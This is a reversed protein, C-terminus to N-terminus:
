GPRFLPEGSASKIMIGLQGTHYAEHFSLFSVVGRVTKDPIPLGSSSEEALQEETVSELAKHLNETAEEWMAKMEDLSAYTASPDYKAQTGGCEKDYPVMVETGLLNILRCRTNILHGVIWQPSATNDSFASTFFEDTAKGLFTNIMATNLQFVTSAETLTKSM